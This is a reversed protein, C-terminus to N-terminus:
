KRINLSIKKDTHRAKYMCSWALDIDFASLSYSWLIGMESFLQISSLSFQFSHFPNCMKDAEYIPESKSRPLQVCIAELPHNLYVVKQASVWTCLYISSTGECNSLSMM